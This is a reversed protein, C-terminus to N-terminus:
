VEEEDHYSGDSHEFIRRDSCQADLWNAFECQYAVPDVSRLVDSPQYTFGCVEILDHCDDLYEIFMQELAYDSLETMKSDGKNNMLSM